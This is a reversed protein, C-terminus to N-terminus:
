IIIQHSFIILCYFVEILASEIAGGTPSPVVTSWLLAAVIVVDGIKHCVPLCLFMIKCSLKMITDEKM